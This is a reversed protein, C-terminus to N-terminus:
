TMTRRRARYRRAREAQSLPKDGILPRGGKNRPTVPIPPIRVPAAAEATVPIPPRLKSDAQVKAYFASAGDSGVINFEPKETKIAKAEAALAAELTPHREIEIRAIRDFWSAAYKHNTLRQLPNSTAGVYLLRGGQDFHRYLCVRLPDSDARQKKEAAFRAERMRRLDDYRTM